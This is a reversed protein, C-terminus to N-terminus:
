MVRRTCIFSAEWFFIIESSHLKNRRTSGYFKSKMSSSYIDLHHKCLALPTVMWNERNVLQHMYWLWHQSSKTSVMRENVDRQPTHIQLESDLFLNILLHSLFSKWFSDFIHPLEKGKRKHHMWSTSAGLRWSHNSRCVQKMFTFYQGNDGEDSM